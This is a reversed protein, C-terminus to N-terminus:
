LLMQSRPILETNGETSSSILTEAAQMMNELPERMHTGQTPTDIPFGKENKIEEQELYDSNYIKEATRGPNTKDDKMQTVLGSVRQSSELDASNYKTNYQM